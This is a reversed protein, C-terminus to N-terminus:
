MVGTYGIDDDTGKDSLVLHWKQNSQLCKAWGINYGWPVEYSDIGLLDCLETVEMEGNNERLVRIIKKRLEIIDLITKDKITGSSELAIRVMGYM